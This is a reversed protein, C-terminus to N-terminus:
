LPFFSEFFSLFLEREAMLTYSLWAIGLYLGRAEENMVSIRSIYDLISLEFTVAVMSLRLAALLLSIDLSLWYNYFFDNFDLLLSSIKCSLYALLSYASFSSWNFDITM